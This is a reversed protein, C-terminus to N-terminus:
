LRRGAAIEGDESLARARSLRVFEALVKERVTAAPKPGEVGAFAALQRRATRSHALLAELRSAEDSSLRGARYAELTEDCPVPADCDAETERAIDWLVDELPVKPSTDM